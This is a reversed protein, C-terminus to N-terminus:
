HCVTEVSSGVTNTSCRLPQRQKQETVRQSMADLAGQFAAARQQSIARNENEILEAQLVQIDRRVADFEERTTKGAEFALAAELGMNAMRMRAALGQQTSLNNLRDFIGGYYESWKMEGRTAKDRATNAFTMLENVKEKDNALAPMSLGLLVAAAIFRLRTETKMNAVGWKDIWQLKVVSWSM